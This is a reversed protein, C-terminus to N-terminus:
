DTKRPNNENNSVRLLTEIEMINLIDKKSIKETEIIKDLRDIVSTLQNSSLYFKHRRVNYLLEHLYSNIAIGNLDSHCHRSIGDILRSLREYEYVEKEAWDEKRSDPFFFCTYDFYAYKPPNVELFRGCEMRSAIFLLLCGFSYSVCSFLIGPYIFYISWCIPYFPLSILFCMTVPKDVSRTKRELMYSFLLAVFPILGWLNLGAQTKLTYLIYSGKNNIDIKSMWAFLGIFNFIVSSGLLYTVLKNNRYM